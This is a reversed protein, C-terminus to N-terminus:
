RYGYKDVEDEYIIQGYRKCAESDISFVIEGKEDTIWTRGYKEVIDTINGAYIQHLIVNYDRIFKYKVPKRNKNINDEKIDQMINEVKNKAKSIFTDSRYNLIMNYDKDLDEETRYVFTRIQDGFNIALCTESSKKIYYAKEIDLITPYKCNLELLKM